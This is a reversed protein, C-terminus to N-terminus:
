RSSYYGWRYGVANPPVYLLAISHMSVLVPLSAM